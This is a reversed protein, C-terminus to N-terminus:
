RRPPPPLVLLPQSTTIQPASRQSRENACTHRRNRLTPVTAIVCCSEMTLVISLNRNQFEWHSAIRLTPLTTRNPGIRLPEAKGGFRVVPPVNESRTTCVMLRGKLSKLHYGDLISFLDPSLNSSSNETKSVLIRVLTMLGVTESSVLGDSQGMRQDKTQRGFIVLRWSNTLLFLNHSSLNKVMLNTTMQCLLRNASQQQMMGLHDQLDDALPVPPM